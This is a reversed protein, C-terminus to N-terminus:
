FVVTAKAETQRRGAELKFTLQIVTPSQIQQRIALVGQTEHEPLLHDSQTEFHAVVLPKPKAEGLSELQEGTLQRRQLDYLSISSEAAGLEVVEPEVLVCPQASLNRVSYHVYLANRSRLVSEIRVTVGKKKDKIGSSDIREAGLFTRTIMMDAVGDMESNVPVPKPAPQPAVIAFNMNQVEGPPSLEYTFRQSATWVFLDTSAGPKLPKIFVKNEHREIQFTSSGAAAMTVPENFELVTLHDLSTSIRVIGPESPRLQADDASVLVASMLILLLAPRM